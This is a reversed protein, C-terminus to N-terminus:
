FLVAAILDLSTNYFVSGLKKKSELRTQIYFTIYQLIMSNLIKIVTSKLM